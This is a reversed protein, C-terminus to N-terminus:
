EPTNWVEDWNIEGSDLLMELAAVAQSDSSHLFLNEADRFSIELVQRAFASDGGLTVHGRHFYEAWGAICRVTKCGYRDEWMSQDHTEPHETIQNYIAQITERGVAPPNIPAKIVSDM